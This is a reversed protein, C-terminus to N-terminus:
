QYEIRGNWPTTNAEISRRIPSAATVRSRIAADDPAAGSGQASRGPIVRAAEAREGAVPQGELPAVRRGMPSGDAAVPGGLALGVPLATELPAIRRGLTMGNADVPGAVRSVVIPAVTEVLQSHAWYGAGFGVALSVAGALIGM